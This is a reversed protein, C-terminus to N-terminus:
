PISIVVKGIHQQSQLYEYAQKAQDFPFIRDIHPKLHNAEIAQVLARLEAASEMLIGRITLQRMIIDRTNINSEIGDLVGILGVRAGSRCAKISNTFTKGGAVDVVIDVGGNSTERVSEVWNEDQYNITESVGFKDKVFRAKERNSTTLITKAGFMKAIQAGFISVGGTGHLLVWQGAQVHGHTVIAAWATLGGITLTAGELYNLNEPVKILSDTPYSIQEALVGNVKGGGVFSKAWESRLKGAPWNRFPANLVRDGPQFETVHSGVKLVDGAMDSCAVIPKELIGGYRGDAVMLDRYNLSVAHVEVLVDTEGLNRPDPDNQLRLSNLGTGDVKYCKM